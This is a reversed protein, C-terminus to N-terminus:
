KKRWQPHVHSFVPMHWNYIWDVIHTSIWQSCIAMIIIKWDILYATLVFIFANILFLPKGPDVNRQRSIILAIVGVGGNSVGNRLLFAIGTGLLVSGVMLDIWENTIPMYVKTEFFHVTLSTISFGFVTGLVNAMGLYHLGFLLMSTNLLWLAIGTPIHFLYNILVTLGGAGGSPIAHPFLFEGMALGQIVSGLIVWLLKQFSYKVNRTVFLKTM